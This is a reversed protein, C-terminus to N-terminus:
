RYGSLGIALQQKHVPSRTEIPRPSPVPDSLRGERWRNNSHRGGGVMIGFSLDFPFRESMTHLIDAHAIIASTFAAPGLSVPASRQHDRLWTIATDCHWTVARLMDLRDTRGVHLLYIFAAEFESDFSEGQHLQHWRSLVRGRLQDFEASSPESVRRLPFSVTVGPEERRSHETVVIM